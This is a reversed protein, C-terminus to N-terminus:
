QAAQVADIPIANGGKNILLTGSIRGKVPATESFQRDLSIGRNLDKTVQTLPLSNTLTWWTADISVLEGLTRNTGTVHFTYEEQSSPPATKKAAVVTGASDTYVPQNRSATRLRLQTQPPGLSGLYVSGDQDIIRIESGTREFRFSALVAQGRKDKDAQAKTASQRVFQEVTTSPYTQKMLPATTSALGYRYVGGAPGAPEPARAPAAGAIASRATADMALEREALNMSVMSAADTQLPVPSPANAAISITPEPGAKLKDALSLNPQEAPATELKTEPLRVIGPTAPALAKENRALLSNPETQHGSRLSLWVALGIVSFACVGWALRAFLQRGFWSVRKEKRVYTRAVEDQLRRRDAAHLEIADSPLRRKGCERLLREIPREPQDAM